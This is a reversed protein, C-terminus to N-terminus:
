RLWGRGEEAQLALADGTRGEYSRKYEEALTDEARTWSNLHWGCARAKRAGDEDAVSDSFGAWRAWSSESRCAEFAWGPRHSDTQLRTLQWCFVARCPPRAAISSM